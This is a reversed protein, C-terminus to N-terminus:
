KRTLAFVTGNTGNDSNASGFLTTGYFTGKVNTLGAVPTNGDHGNQFSHLVKETGSAPDVSFVTGQYDEGGEPTTGYLKGKVDILGGSPNVGDACRAKGCFSYIANASGTGPDFAYITGTTAPKPGAVRARGGGSAMGYFIGDINILGSSPGYGEECNPQSCFKYLVTEAWTKPDLSFVTGCGYSGGCATGGGAGTTGYFKGKWYTLPGPGAGDAVQDFTYILTEVGSNPDFSFVTGCTLLSQSKCIPGGSSTTGYLIGKVNILNARPATGDTCNEESCFSHLITEAGSDPDVSFLSGGGYAGGATTTGYLLGNAYILGADPEEGDGKCGPTCFSHLVTEVGTSPDLSFVAGGKNVGGNATTGYLKGNVEILTGRPVQGDPLAGFSWVINEQTKGPEVAPASSAFACAIMSAFLVASIPKM